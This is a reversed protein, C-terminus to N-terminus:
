RSNRYIELGGFKFTVDELDEKLRPDGNSYRNVHTIYADTLRIEFAPTEASNSLTVNQFQEGSKGMVAAVLQPTTKDLKITVKLEQNKTAPQGPKAGLM